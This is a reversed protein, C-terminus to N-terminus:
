SGDWRAQCGRRFRPPGVPDLPRRCPGPLDATARSEDNRGVGLQRQCGAWSCTPSTRCPYHRYVRALRRPGSWSRGPWSGPGAFAPRPVWVVRTVPYRRRSSPIAARPPPARGPRPRTEPAPQAASSNSGARASGPHDAPSGGASNTASSSSIAAATRESRRLVCSNAIPSASWRSRSDRTATGVSSIRPRARGRTRREADCALELLRDRVRLEDHDGTGTVDAVELLGLLEVLGHALETAGGANALPERARRHLGSTVTDAPTHAM